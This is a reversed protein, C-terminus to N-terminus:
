QCDFESYIEATSNENIIRTELLAGYQNYSYYSGNDLRMTNGDWQNETVIGDSTARITKCWHNDCDYEYLYETGDNYDVTKTVYGRDNYESFGDDHEQRNENWIYNTVVDDMTPDDYDLEFRSVKCWDEELHETYNTYSYGTTYNIRLEEACNNHNLQIHGTYLTNANMTDYWVLEARQNNWIYEGDYEYITEQGSNSYALQNSSLLRCYVSGFEEQAPNQGKDQLNDNLGLCGVQM